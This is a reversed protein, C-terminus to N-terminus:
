LSTKLELLFGKLKELSKIMAFKEDAQSNQRLYEKAGEITFKRRRLLDYILLLNKVDVPRFFRDGKRNKRPKLIDFETEWHRLLSQNVRFMTAVESISYYQKQFLLEDPPVQILDADLGIDKLSRRGRTSITKQIPPTTEIEEKPAKQKSLISGHEPKLFPNITKNETSDSFELTPQTLSKEM